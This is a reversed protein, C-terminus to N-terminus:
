IRGRIRYWKLPRIWFKLHEAVECWHLVVHLWKFISLLIISPYIVTSLRSLTKYIRIAQQVRTSATVILNRSHRCSAAYLSRRTHVRTRTFAGIGSVISASYMRKAVDGSRAASITLRNLTNASFLFSATHRLNSVHMCISVSLQSHRTSVFFILTGLQVLSRFSEHLVWEDRQSRRYVRKFFLLDTM